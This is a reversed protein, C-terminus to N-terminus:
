GEEVRYRSGAAGKEVLIRYRLRRTLEPLHTILGVMRGGTPLSEIAEAVTELTEPDLSGFGEDIFISDLTVAGAQRQIQESLELALSISALFTEGGSLTDASRRQSANDHDIVHFSDREFRLAYRQQSLEMLRASAGRVLEQFTRELLYAQLRDSQLDRALQMMHQHESRLLTLGGELQSRQAVRRELDGLSGVLAALEERAQREEAEAAGVRAELAEVDAADAWAGGLADQLELARQQLPHLERHYAQIQQEMRHQEASDLAAARVSAEADFGSAAAAERATQRLTEVKAAASDRAQRAKEAAASTRESAEARRRELEAATQEATELRSLQQEVQQREAAPDETEAVARIQQQYSALEKLVSRLDTALADRQAEAQEGERGALTLDRAVEQLQKELQEAADVAAAHRTELIRLREIEALTRGEISLDGESEDLDDEWFDLRQEIERRSAEINAQTASSRREAAAALDAAAKLESESVALERQADEFASRAAKEARRAEALAAALADLDGAEPEDPLEVIAQECVPCAEGIVLGSRLQAVHQRHEARQWAADDLRLRAAAEDLDQRARELAQQQEGRVSEARQRRQVAESADRADREAEQRRDVLRLAHDRVESLLRAREADYGVDVARSQAMALQESLEDHRQTLRKRQADLSQLREEQQTQKTALDQQRDQASAVPALLESVGSLAELRRRLRPIDEGDRRVRELSSRAEDLATAASQAKSSEREAVGRLERAEDIRDNLTEFHPLVPAARRAAALRHELAEIEERRQDLDALRRRKSDLEQSQEQQRKRNQLRRRTGELELEAAAVAQRLEDVQQRRAELENSTAEAFDEDLRRRDSDIRSELARQEALALRRMEEYVHLRLLDRLIQRRKGPESKLFAAFEGQPLIVARVFTEYDFGLLEEVKARVNKVGEALPQFDHQRDTNPVDNRSAPLRQELIAQTARSRHVVRVVRYASEGLQFDFHVSMRDRGLSMLESVGHRGLRPVRGFLAFIMADLLSSKGAGTAGSIAVLDLGALQLAPQPESFCTFGDLSLRLPRM